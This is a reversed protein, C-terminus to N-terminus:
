ANTDSLAPLLTVAESSRGRPRKDEAGEEFLTPVGQIYVLRTLSYPIMVVPIRM